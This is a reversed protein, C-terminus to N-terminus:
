TGPQVPLLLRLHTGSTSELLELRGGNREALGRAIALGLGSGSGRARAGDARYFRDFVKERHDAPIGAGDDIVDLRVQDDDVDVVLRVTTAAHTVANDLLNRVIRRADDPNARAPAGSVQGTEIRVTSGARARTAEELVLEDLDIAAPQTGADADLEALVLLDRVLREMDSTPGLVDSRLRDRDVDGAPRLALELAVRQAALPSQLDHSVDAVFDRQQRASRDLRGLMANMTAALRGVEDDVGDGEVRSQLNEASIRDVDARIRDLRGLTRGLLLWIVTGLLAVVVPVGIWLARRLASSAEAVSELSSGVYVHVIGEPSQGSASWVRYTETEQDDPAEFTRVTPVTGASRDTVPGRGALNPSAAIVEGTSGVVQAMGDDDLNTLVPPLDGTRALDLLDVVRSRSLQDSSAILRSELTSVLVVSGLVLVLAFLATGTATAKTRLSLRQTM